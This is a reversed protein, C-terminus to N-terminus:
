GCCAAGYRLDLEELARATDNSGRTIFSLEDHGFITDGIQAALGILLACFREDIDRM